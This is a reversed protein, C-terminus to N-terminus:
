GAVSPSGNDSRRDHAFVWTRLLRYTFFSLLLDIGGKMLTLSLVSTSLPRVLLTLGYSLALRGLWVAYYKVVSNRSKERFVFTFNLLFNLLSSIIRAGVTSLLVFVAGESGRFVFRELLFFVLVDLLACLVSSITYRITSACLVGLIKISDRLPSFHSVREGNPANKMYRTTIDICAIPIHHTGCHTLVRMEYDFGDGRIALLFSLREHSFARLGTQTDRIYSGFFLQFLRASVKNGFRSRLPVDKKDFSRCGLIMASPRRRIAKEMRVVDEPTHQGDCDATIYLTQSPFREKAFAFAHRLARGKGGNKVLRLLCCHEIRTAEAFREYYDEGSGDDVVLIFADTKQRLAHLFVPFEKPPHYAPIIIVVPTHM